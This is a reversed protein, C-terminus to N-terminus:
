RVIMAACRCHRTAREAVSGILMRELGTLGHTGMVVLSVDPRQSVVAIARAASKDVLVETTVDEHASLDKARLAALDDWRHRKMESIPGGGGGSLDGIPVSPNAVHFLLLGVGLARAMDAAARTARLASESFDTAIAVRGPQALREDGGPPVVMVHCPCHRVILEAVSGILMHMLGTRGHTGTIVLDAQQKRAYDALAFAVSGGDIAEIAISPDGLAARLKVLESRAVARSNSRVSADQVMAAWAGPVYPVAHLLTIDADLPRKLFLAAKAATDATDSFDTAVLIRRM